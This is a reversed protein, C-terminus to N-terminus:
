LDICRTDDIDLISCSVSKIHRPIHLRTLIKFTTTRGIMASEDLSSFAGSLHRSSVVSGVVIITWPMLAASALSLADTTDRVAPACTVTDNSALRPGRSVIFSSNTVFLVDVDIVATSIITLSYTITSRVEDTLFARSVMTLRFLLPLTNLVTCLAIVLVFGDRLRGGLSALDLSQVLRRLLGGLLM